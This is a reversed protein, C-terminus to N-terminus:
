QSDGKVDLFSAFKQKIRGITIQEAAVMGAMFALRIRNELFQRQAAPAQLTVPDCALKGRDSELYENLAVSEANM